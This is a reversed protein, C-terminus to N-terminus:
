LHPAMTLLLKLWEVGDACSIRSYLTESLSRMKRRFIADSLGLPCPVIPRSLIAFCISLSCPILTFRAPFHLFTLLLQPFHLHHMQQTQCPHYTSSFWKVDEDLM